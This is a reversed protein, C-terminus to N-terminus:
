EGVAACAKEAFESKGRCLSGLEERAADARGARQLALALYWTTEARVSTGERARAGRLSEIAGAADNLFLRSVGLYFFVERSQPYKKALAEFQRAAEEFSDARYADLAPRLDTLFEDSGKESRMVLVSAPLQVAPKELPILAPSTPRAPERQTIAPPQAPPEDLGARFIVLALVALATAGLAPWWLARWSRELRPRAEAAAAGRVRALIREEVEANLAGEEAEAALARSWASQELRAAVAEQAEDPLAEAKAARLVEAAPDNRHRERLEELEKRLPELAEREEPDLKDWLNSM